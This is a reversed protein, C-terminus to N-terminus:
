QENYEDGEMFMIFYFMFWTMFNTMIHSICITICIFILIITSFPLKFVNKFHNNYFLVTGIFTTEIMIRLTDNHMNGMVGNTFSKVYEGTSGLGLNIFENNRIGSLVRNTLNYRGMSFENLVIGFKQYFFNSFDPSYLLIMIFPSLMFIIKLFTNFKKNFLITKKNNVKIRLIYYLYVIIMFVIHFRKFCLFCLLACIIYKIKYNKKLYYCFLLLYFDALGISEFPSYSDLFSIQSISNFNLIERSEIFFVITTVYFITNFYFDSNKNDRCYIIYALLLPVIYYFLHKLPLLNFSFNILQFSYSILIMFLYVFLLRKIREKNYSNNSEKKIFFLLFFGYILAVIYKLDDNFSAYYDSYFWFAITIIFFFREIIESKKRKTM